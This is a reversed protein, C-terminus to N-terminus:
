KNVKRHGCDRCVVLIGIPLTVKALDNGSCKDCGGVLVPPAGTAEALTPEPEPEVDPVVGLEEIRRRMRTVQKKLAKNERRLEASEKSPSERPPKHQTVRHNSM